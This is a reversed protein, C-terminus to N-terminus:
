SQRSEPPDYAEVEEGASMEVGISPSKPYQSAKFLYFQEVSDLRLDIEEDPAKFAM